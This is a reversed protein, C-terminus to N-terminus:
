DNFYDGHRRYDRLSHKLLPADSWYKIIKKVERGEYLEPIINERKSSGLTAAVWEDADKDFRCVYPQYDADFGFLYGEQTERSRPPPWFQWDFEFDVLRERM